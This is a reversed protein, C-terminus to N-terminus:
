KKSLNEAHFSLRTQELGPVSSIILIKLLKEFNYGVIQAIKHYSKNSKSLNDEKLHKLVSIPVNKLKGCVQKNKLGATYVGLYQLTPIKVCM